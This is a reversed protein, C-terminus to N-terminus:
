AIDIFECLDWICNVDLYVPFLFSRGPRSPIGSSSDTGHWAGQHLRNECGVLMEESPQGGQRQAPGSAPHPVHYMNSLLVRRLGTMERDNTKLTM